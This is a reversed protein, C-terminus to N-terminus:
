NLLAKVKRSSAASHSRRVRIRAMPRKRLLPRARLLERRVDPMCAKRIWYSLLIRSRHLQAKLASVTIGLERATAEEGLGRLYFLYIADHYKEPLQYAAKRLIESREEHAYAEEPTPRRDVFASEELVGEETLHDQDTSIAPHAKAKRYYMRSTNRVISHVWTSFSSRGEFQHIKRFALLLADQLADESDQENWFMRRASKRLKPLCAAFLENLQAADMESPLREGHTHNAEVSEETDIV